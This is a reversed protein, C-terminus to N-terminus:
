RCRGSPRGSTAALWGVIAGAPAFGWAAGDDLAAAGVALGVLAGLVAMTITRPSM